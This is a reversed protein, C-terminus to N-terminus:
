PFFPLFKLCSRFFFEKGKLYLCQCLESDAIHIRSFIRSTPKLSKINMSSDPTLKAITLNYARDKLPELALPAFGFLRPLFTEIIPAM